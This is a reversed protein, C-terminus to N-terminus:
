NLALVTYDSILWAGSNSRYLTFTYRIRRHTYRISEYADVVVHSTNGHIITETINYSTLPLNWHITFFKEFEKLLELKFHADISQNYQVAYNEFSQLLRESDIHLLFKEWDKSFQAEFFSQVIENPLLQHLMSIEENRKISDDVIARLMLPSPTHSFTTYDSMISDARNDPDPYFIGKVYFTEYTSITYVDRLDFLRSFSENPMLTVTRYFAPNSYIETLVLETQHTIPLVENRSTRLDFHLTQLLIDSLVFSQERDSNNHIALTLNIPENAQYNQKVFSLTIDLNDHAHQAHSPVIFFFIVAFLFRM